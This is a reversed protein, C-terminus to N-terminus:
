PALKQGLGFRGASGADETKSTASLTRIGRENETSFRGNNVILLAPGRLLPNAANQQGVCLSVAMAQAGADDANQILEKIISLRTRYRDRLNRQIEIIQTRPDDFYAPM